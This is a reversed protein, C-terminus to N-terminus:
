GDQGPAAIQMKKSIQMLKELTAVIAENNTGELANKLEEVAEELQSKVDNPVNDANASLLEEAASLVQGPKPASLHM